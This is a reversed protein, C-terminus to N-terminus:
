EWRFLSVSLVRCVALIGSLVAIDLWYNPNVAGLWAGQMLEVGYTLPLARSVARVGEPM